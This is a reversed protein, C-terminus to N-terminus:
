VYASSTACHNRRYVRQVQGCILLALRMDIPTIMRECLQFAQRSDLM